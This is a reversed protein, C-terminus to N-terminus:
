AIIIDGQKQEGEIEKIIETVVSIKIEMLSRYPLLVQGKIVIVDEKCNLNELYAYKRAKLMHLVKECM